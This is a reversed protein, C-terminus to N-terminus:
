KTLCGFSSIVLVRKDRIYNYIKDIRGNLRSGNLTGMHGINYKQKFRDQCQNIINNIGDPGYYLFEDCNGCSIELEKIYNWFNPTLASYDFNFVIGKVNKDYYGSDSYLYNVFIIFMKSLQPKLHPPLNEYKLLYNIFLLHTETNGYRTIKISLSM